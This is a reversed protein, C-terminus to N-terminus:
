ERSMHGSQVLSTGDMRRRYHYKASAVLGLTNRGSLLIYRGVFHADEFTPRIRDDFRLDHERIVSMRMFAPAAGMQIMPDHRLDVLRSGRYFRKASFHTDTLTGDDDMRMQHTALIALDRDDYLDIFKAIEEFYRDQLVDDPDTFTVWDADVAAIGNNRAAAVKQNAQHIVTVHSERGRAWDDLISGSDDSSGDNVFVIQVREIGYTQRELSRLLEPLYRAVNYTAIVASLKFARHSSDHLNPDEPLRASRLALM